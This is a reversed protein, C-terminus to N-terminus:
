GAKNAMWRAKAAKSRELLAAPVRSLAADVVGSDGVPAGGAAPTEEAPADFTPPVFGPVYYIYLDELVKQLGNANHGKALDVTVVNSYVHVGSVKGTDFFRRAIEASPRPGVAQDRTHFREHGMGSFNRNAEFRVIGPRSSSKQVVAVPQGM